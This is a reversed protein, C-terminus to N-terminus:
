GLFFTKEHSLHSLVRCYYLIDRSAALITWMEDITYLVQAQLIQLDFTKLYDASKILFGHGKTSSSVFLFCSNRANFFSLDGGQGQLWVLSPTFNEPFSDSSQCYLLFVSNEIKLCRNWYFLVRLCASGFHYEYPSFEMTMVSSLSLTVLKFTKFSRFFNNWIRNPCINM